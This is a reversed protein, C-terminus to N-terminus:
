FRGDALASFWDSRVWDVSLGLRVDNSVAVELAQASCEVAIMKCRPRHHKIALAFPVAAAARTWSVPPSAM